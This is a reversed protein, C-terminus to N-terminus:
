VQPLLRARAVIAIVCPDLPLNSCDPYPLFPVGLSELWTEEGEKDRGECGGDVVEAEGECLAAAVYLVEHM